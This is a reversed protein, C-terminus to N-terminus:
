YKKIPIKEGQSCTPAIKHFRNSLTGYAHTTSQINNKEQSLKTFDINFM